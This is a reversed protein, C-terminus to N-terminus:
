KEMRALGHVSQAMKLKPSEEWFQPFSNATLHYRYSFYYTISFKIFDYM